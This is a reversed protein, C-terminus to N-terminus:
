VYFFRQFFPSCFGIAVVLPVSLVIFVLLELLVKKWGTRGINLSVAIKFAISSSLEQIMLFVAEAITSM